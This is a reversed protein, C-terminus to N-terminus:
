TARPPAPEGPEGRAKLPRVTAGDNVSVPIRVRLERTRVEGGRGDCTPCPDDILSGRGQCTPCPAPSASCDRTAPSRAGATAPRAPVPCTGPKARSGHCTHCPRPRAAAPPHHRQASGGRIRPHGREVDRGRRAATRSQQGGGFLNQFLDGLGGFDEVRVRGGGPFGGGGGPYGGFGGGGFAGSALLRREDYEARKKPGSLVSYARGVEKFREESAKDGKNADPHHQQALKRYAKKIDAASADKSVGLAAYFDKELHYEANNM